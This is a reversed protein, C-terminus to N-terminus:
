VLNNMFSNDTMRRRRIIRARRKMIKLSYQVIHIYVKEHRNRKWNSRGLKQFSIKRKEVYIWKISDSNSAKSTSLLYNVSCISRNHWYTPVHKNFHSVLALLLNHAKKNFSISRYQRLSPVCYASIICSIM